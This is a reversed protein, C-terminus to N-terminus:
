TDVIMRQPTFAARISADIENPKIFNPKRLKQGETM